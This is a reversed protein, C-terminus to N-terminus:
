DKPGPATSTPIDVAAGNFSLGYVAGGLVDCTDGLVDTSNADPKSTDTVAVKEQINVLRQNTSAGTPLAFASEPTQVTCVLEGPDIDSDDATQCGGPTPETLCTIVLLGGIQGAPNGTAAGDIEASRIAGRVGITAPGAAAPLTALNVPANAAVIQGPNGTDPIDPSVLASTTQVTGGAAPPLQIRGIVAGYEQAGVFDGIRQLGPAITDRVITSLQILGPGIQIRVAEGLTTLSSILTPAAGLLTGLGGEANRLRAAVAGLDTTVKVINRRATTVQKRTSSLQKRATNLRRNITRIPPPKAQSSQASPGEDSAPAAMASPAGALGVTLCAAVTAVAARSVKM